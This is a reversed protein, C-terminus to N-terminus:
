RIVGAAILGITVGVGTFVVASRTKGLLLLFTVGMLGYVIGPRPGTVFSVINFFTTLGRFDWGAVWEMIRIDQPPSPNDMIAKTVLSLLVALVGFAVLWFVTRTNM